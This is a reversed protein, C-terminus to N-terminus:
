WLKRSASSTSGSDDGGEVERPRWGVRDGLDGLDGLSCDGAMALTWRFSEPYSDCVEEGRVDAVYIRGLGERRVVPRDVYPM